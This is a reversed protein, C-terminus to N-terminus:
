LALAGAGLWRPPGERSEGRRFLFRLYKIFTAYQLMHSPVKTGCAALLSTEYPTADLKLWQVELLISACQPFGPSLLLLLLCFDLFCWHMARTLYIHTGLPRNVGSSTQSTQQHVRIKQQRRWTERALSVRERVGVTASNTCPSLLLQQFYVELSLGEGGRGRRRAVPSLRPFDSGDGPVAAGALPLPFSLFM